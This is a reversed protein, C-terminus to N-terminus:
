ILYDHVLYATSVMAFMVFFKEPKLFCVEDFFWIFPYAGECTSHTFGYLAMPIVVFHHLNASLNSLWYAREKSGMSEYREHVRPILVRGATLLCYDMFMFSLAFAVFAALFVQTYERLAFEDVFIVGDRFDDKLRPVLDQTDM